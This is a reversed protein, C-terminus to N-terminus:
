FAYSVGVGLLQRFQLKPEGPDTVNGNDDKQENFLIDDDYILQTGVTTAIYRNIRFELNLEWDVDINGFRRLYDSYLSLRHKIGVNEFLIAEWSNSILFGFELFINEGERVINGDVDTQAKEVGFAGKDALDQDLVFTTKQTLPSIYLNLKQNPSIYSTGAGLFSYGPAMFRSIPSSRDPYKFGNSFQTNFNAKVSYFWNSITDRRYGFTSSLRIADDTKRLKQNEQLNLGYRLDMYNNWQIYRFKYNREFKLDALASISNNGGASWNVFAVENMSIGLKNKNTWFSPLRRRRLALDFDSPKLSAKSNALKIGRPIVRPKEQFSRDQVTIILVSDVPTKEPITDQSSIQNVSMILLCLFSLRIFFNHLM